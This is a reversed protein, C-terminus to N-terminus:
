SFFNVSFNFFTCPYGQVKKEIKAWFDIKSKQVKLSQIQNFFV